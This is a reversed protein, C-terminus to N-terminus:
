IIKVRVRNYTTHLVSIMIEILIFPIINIEIIFTNTVLYGLLVGVIAFLGLILRSSKHM